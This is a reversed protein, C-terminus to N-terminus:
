NAPDETCVDVQQGPDGFLGVKACVYGDRCNPSAPNCTAVCGGGDRLVDACYAAPKQPNSPCGEEDCAATCYGGPYETLCRVGKIAPSCDAVSKCPEGIWAGEIEPDVTEFYGLARAYRNYIRYFLWAGSESTEGYVPDLQYLAATSADPPTVQIGDLTSATVNEGWGGYTVGDPSDQIQSLYGRLQGALCELQRDLGTMEPLCNGAGDCGCQFAYEVRKPDDPYKAISLLGQAMQLRVLLVIPNIRAKLAAALVAGAASVGNSTYSELFSHRGYPTRQFFRVMAAEERVAYPYTFDPYLVLSSSPDFVIESAGPPKADTPDLLSPAENSAGCAAVGVVSLTALM